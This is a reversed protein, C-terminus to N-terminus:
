SADKKRDIQELLTERNKNQKEYEQVRELDETSLGDLKKSVEDVTLDDYNEIGVSGMNVKAGFQRVSRETQEVARVTQETAEEALRLGQRTAQQTAELGQQTAELGQQTAQQASKLGERVYNFPSFYGQYNFPSFFGQFAWSWEETLAQLGEQQSRASQVFTEATNRNHELQEQVYRSGNSMWDQVFKVNRQQLQLLAVSSSWWDQAARANSEQLKLFELGGEALEANRRQFAELNNAAAEYSARQAEAMDQTIRSMREMSRSMEM